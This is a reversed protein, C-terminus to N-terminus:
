EGDSLARRVAHVLEVSADIEDKRLSVSEVNCGLRFGKGRAFRQLEDFISLCLQVSTRLIDNAHLLDNQLWHPISIGLWEMFELTRRSGCPSLTVLVPPMDRKEAQCRYYLDSLVDKSATVSYVAQSILFQCGRDIKALVRAHEDQAREHREAILVGGCPLTPQHTRRVAYAETLTLSRAQDRSPAGVLVTAGGRAHLEGLWRQLTDPTQESVSRYVIKPVKVAHLYDFAYTAPDICRLFPFPRQADTRSSEDQLDYVVLADIPLAAIRKAQAAAVVRRKTEDYNLKPPTIGYTLLPKTPPFLAPHM